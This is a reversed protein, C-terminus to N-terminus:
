YKIIYNMVVTNPRTENDEMGINLNNPDPRVIGEKTYWIETINDAITTSSAGSTSVTKSAAGRDEYQHKHKQVSMEQFTGLNAEAVPVKFQNQYTTNEGAGKIYMQRLDPLYFDTSSATRGNLFTNGIVDWLLNYTTKSVAQGQCMFYGNPSETGAYMQISGVPVLPQRVGFFYVSDRSLSMFINPDLGGGSNAAIAFQAVAGNSVDSLSGILFARDTPIPQLTIANHFKLKEYDPQDYKEITADFVSNNITIPTNAFAVGSSSELAVIRSTNSNLQTQLDQASANSDLTLIKNCTIQQTFLNSSITTKNLFADYSLATIKSNTLDVNTSLDNLNGSLDFIQNSLDAVEGSIDVYATNQVTNDYFVLQNLGQTMVLSPVQLTGNMRDGYRNIYISDDDDDCCDQKAYKSKNFVM